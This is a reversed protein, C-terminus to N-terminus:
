YRKRHQIRFDYGNQNKEDLSCSVKDGSFIEYKLSRIFIAKKFIRNSAFWLLM